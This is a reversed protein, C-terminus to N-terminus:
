STADETIIVLCMKKQWPLRYWTHFFVLALKLEPLLCKLIDAPSIKTRFYSGPRQGHQSTTFFRSPQETNTLLILLGLTARAAARGPTLAFLTYQISQFPTGM